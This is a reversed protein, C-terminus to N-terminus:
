EAFSDFCEEAAVWQLVIEGQLVQAFEHQGFVFYHIGLQNALQSHAVDDAKKKSTIQGGVTPTMSAFRVLPVIIWHYKLSDLLEWICSDAATM